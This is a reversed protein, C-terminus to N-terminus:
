SEDKRLKFSEAFSQITSDPLRDIFRILTVPKEKYAHALECVARELEETAPGYTYHEHTQRILGKSVFLSTYKEVAPLTIVVPNMAAVVEEVRFDRDPHAAFFLLVEAAQYTPVCNHIFDILSTPLPVAM